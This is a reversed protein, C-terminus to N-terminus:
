YNCNYWSRYDDWILTNKYLSVGNYHPTTGQTDAIRLQINNGNVNEVYATITISLILATTGDKCVKDGINKKAFYSAEKREQAAKQKKAREQADAERKLREQEAKEKAIKIEDELKIVRQDALTKFSSRPYKAIFQKLAVVSQEKNKINYANKYENEEVLTEPNKIEKIGQFILDNNQVLFEITPQFDKVSLLDKFKKAYELKVPVQVNQHYKGRSSDIVIDFLQKDADYNLSSIKPNGYKIHMAKQLYELYITESNEEIYALKKEYKEKQQLVQNEWNKLNQVNQADIKEKEKQVRLNFQETTEFEGKKLSPYDLKTPKQNLTLISSKKKYEDFMAQALVSIDGKIEDTTCMAYVRSQGFGSRYKTDKKLRQYEDLNNSGVRIIYIMNTDYKNYPKHATNTFFYKNKMEKPLDKSVYYGTKFSSWFEDKEPLRFNNFVIGDEKISLKSCYARAQHWTLEYNATEKAWFLNKRYRLKVGDFNYKKVDSWEIYGNAKITAKSAIKAEEVNKELQVDLNLDDNLTIWKRYTQYGEKVVKIDYKGRELVIGDYYSPKINMIYISAGQPAKIRLSPNSNEKKELSKKDVKKTSNGQNLHYSNTTCGSFLLCLAVGFYFRNLSM